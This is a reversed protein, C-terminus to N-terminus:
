PVVHLRPPPPAALTLVSDTRATTGDVWGVRVSVAAVRGSDAVTWSVAYGGRTLSGSAPSALQLLSDAVSLMIVNAEDRAEAERLTRIARSSAAAIALIGAAFLILAILAEIVSFGPRGPGLRAVRCRASVM